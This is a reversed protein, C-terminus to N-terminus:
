FQKVISGLIAGIEPDEWRLRGWHQPSLGSDASVRGKRDEM